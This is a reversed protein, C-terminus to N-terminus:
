LNSDRTTFFCESAIETVLIPTVSHGSHLKGQLAVAVQVVSAGVAPPEAHLDEELGPGLDVEAVLPFQRREPFISKIKKKFQNM